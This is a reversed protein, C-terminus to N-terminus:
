RDEHQQDQRYGAHVQQPGRVLDAGELGLLLRLSRLLPAVPPKDLGPQARGQDAEGRQPWWRARRGGIGAPRVLLLKVGREGLEARVDAAFLFPVGMDVLVTIATTHKRTATTRPTTAA